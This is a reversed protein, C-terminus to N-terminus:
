LAFVAFSPLVVAHAGVRDPLRRGLIRLLITASAYAAYFPAARAMGLFRTFPAVFFFAANVGAGFFVTAFLVHRIGVLRLLRAARHATGGRAAPPPVPGREPVCVTLLLSLLAFASGALLLARYGRAAILEEGLAPGLGNPAMGAVGFIAI